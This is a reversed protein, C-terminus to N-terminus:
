CNTRWQGLIRRYDEAASKNRTEKDELKVLDPEGGSRPGTLMNTKRGILREELPVIVWAAGKQSQYEVYPLPPRGLDYWATCYVFTSVVTWTDKSEEYDLLIPVYISRWKPPPNIGAAPAPIDVTMETPEWGGPGGIEGQKKGLATRQVVIVQGTELRVEESWKLNVKGCGVLLIMSVAIALPWRLNKDKM